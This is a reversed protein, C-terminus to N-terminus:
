QAKSESQREEATGTELPRMARYNVYSAYRLFKV